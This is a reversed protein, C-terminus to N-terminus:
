IVVSKQKMLTVSSKTNMKYKYKDRMRISWEVDEGEGWVLGENLPCSEMVHKKAVWYAGSIYMHQTKDYDYPILRAKGQFHMGSGCWKETCVWPHGFEPDDWTCWDRYRTGNQNNIVNMCVDWDDEMDLFGQYWNDDFFIYDHMYVINDYKAHETILNKKKTIWGRKEQEDFPIHTFQPILGTENYDGGVLIIEFSPICLSFISNLVIPISKETASSTVIGFTFDM